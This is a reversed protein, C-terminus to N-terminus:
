HIVESTTGIRQLEHKIWQAGLRSFREGLKGKKFQQTGGIHDRKSESLLSLIKSTSAPDTMSQIEIDFSQLALPLAEAKGGLETIAVLVEEADQQRASQIIVV